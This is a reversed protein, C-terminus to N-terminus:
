EGSDCEVLTQPITFTGIAVLVEDDLAIRPLVIFRLLGHSFLRQTCPNDVM